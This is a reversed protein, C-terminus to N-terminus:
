GGSTADAVAEELPVDRGAAWAAAAAEGAGLTARLSNLQRELATREVPELAGGYSALGREAAGALRAARAADGAGAAVGAAAVLGRALGPLDDYEQCVTLCERLYREARGLDGEERAVALALHALPGTATRREGLSRYLAVSRELLAATGATEGRRLRLAALRGLGGALAGRHGLAAALAQQERWYGEAAALDGRLEAVEASRALALATGWRDGLRRSQALAQRLTEAATEVEGDEYALLGLWSLAAATGWAEGTARFGELAGRWWAELRGRDGGRQHVVALYMLAWAQSLRDGTADALRHGEEALAAARGADGAWFALHAAEGLARSRVTPPAEPARALLTELRSRGEARYGRLYWFWGLAAALRLGDGAALRGAPAAASWELAARLNDHDRELRALWALQGAGRVRPEAELALSLYHALHRARVAEGEGSAELRELAYDRVTQLMALRPVGPQDDPGAGDAGDPEELTLLSKDALAQVGDLVAIPDLAVTDAEPDPAQGYPSASRSASPAPAGPDDVLAGEVPAGVAEAAALTCGGVFVALRRFLVRETPALLDHSWDMAARLTQQQPPATRAGASLLRFRDGLRAAIQEVSLARGRAAALELALPLGDLRACIAAVAAATAETLAFGPRAAALRELFLRVAPFHALGEVSVPEGEAPAPPAPLPPVRWVTEGQAGLAERSTALVTV